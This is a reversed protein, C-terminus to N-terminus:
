KGMVFRTIYTTIFSPRKYRATLKVARLFVVTNYQFWDWLNAKEINRAGECFFGFRTQQGSFSVEDDSFDQQCKTDLVYFNPYVSRFREIFQFDSFDLKVEANYGGVKNFANINVMIGSNVPSLRDFSNIGAAIKDPYFGRKFRYTCPSFIKGDNLYLIPVFLHIQPNETIAREYDELITPPLTTDQDLLLVWKKQQKQAHAAGTNYAKSVGSNEPDHKYTIDIGIHKGIRQSLLSNDYVFLDLSTADVRMKKVSQFSEADKLRTNYVVLIITLSDTFDKM